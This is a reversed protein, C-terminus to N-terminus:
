GSFSSCSRCNSVAKSNTFKFGTQEPSDIFDVTVGELIPLSQADIIIKIRGSEVITDADTAITEIAIAYEPGSCGSSASIRLGLPSNKSTKIFRDIVTQARDTLNLM